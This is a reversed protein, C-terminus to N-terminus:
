IYSVGLNSGFKVMKQGNRPYIQGLNSGFKVKRVGFKVMRVGFKVLKGGNKMLKTPIYVALPFISWKEPNRVKEWPLGETKRLGNEM